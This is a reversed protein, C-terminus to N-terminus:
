KIAGLTLGSVLFRQFIAAVVFVPFAVIASAAFMQGWLIGRNTAFMTIAVPLTRSNVSSLVLAFLFENWCFIFCLVGTAALGPSMLPLGVRLFGGIRSCGDVMASEEMEGPVTAIFGRLMWICFPLNFAGYLIILGIRTDYLGMSRWLVYIPIIIAIMPLMAICLIGFAVAQQGKFRFRALSYAPLFAACLVLITSFSAIISTNTLYLYWSSGSFIKGYNALTPKFIWVPPMTFAVVPAKLSNFLSWFVPFVSFALWIATLVYLCAM